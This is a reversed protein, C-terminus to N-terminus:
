PLRETGHTATLCSTSRSTARFRCEDGEGQALPSLAFKAWQMLRVDGDLASSDTPLVGSCVLRRDDGVVPNRDTTWRWALLSWVPWFLLGGVIALLPALLVAAFVNDASLLDAGGAAVDGMLGILLGALTLLFLTKM